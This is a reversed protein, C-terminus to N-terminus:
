SNSSPLQNLRNLFSERFIDKIKSISSKPYGCFESTPIRLVYM